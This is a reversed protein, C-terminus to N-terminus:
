PRTPKEKDTPRSETTRALLDAVDAWLRAWAAREEAPLRGLADAGRVGAFDCDALWQQMKQGVVPHARSLDRALLQQWARLDGRLWTLAQRRWRLRQMSDLGAADKGQGCGALVAACAANYRHENRLDGVLKPEASFAGAYFRVASYRKEQVQCLHALALGEAATSPQVEGSLMKPLKDALAVLPRTSHIFQESPYGLEHSRELAALSEALRNQRLLILGLTSHAQAFRPQLAIAKRCAAEADVLKWQDYLALSLHYHGSSLGSALAVAKRFAAEAEPL